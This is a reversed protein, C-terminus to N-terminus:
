QRARFAEAITSAPLSAPRIDLNGSPTDLTATFVEAAFTCGTSTGTPAECTWDRKGRIKLGSVERGDLKVTVANGTAGAPPGLSVVLKSALDEGTIMLYYRGARDAIEAAEMPLEERRPERGLEATRRARLDSYKAEIYSSATAPTLRRVQANDADLKGEFELAFSGDFRGAKFLEASAGSVQTATINATGRTRLSESSVDIEADLARLAPPTQTVDLVYLTGLFESRSAHTGLEKLYSYNYESRIYDECGALVGFGALVLAVRNWERMWFGIWKSFCLCGQPSSCTQHLRDLM